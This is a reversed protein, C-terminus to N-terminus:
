LRGGNSTPGNTSDGIRDVMEKLEDMSAIDMVVSLTGKKIGNSILKGALDGLPAGLPGFVLSGFGRTFGQIKQDLQQSAGSPDPSADFADQVTADM